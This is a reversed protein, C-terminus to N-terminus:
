GVQMPDQQTFLPYNSIQSLITASSLPHNSIQSLNHAAKFTHHNSGPSKFPTSTLPYLQQNPTKGNSHLGGRLCEMSLNAPQGRGVALLLLLLLQLRLLRCHLRLLLLQL